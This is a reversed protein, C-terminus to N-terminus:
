WILLGTEEDSDDRPDRNRKSGQTRRSKRMSDNYSSIGAELREPQKQLVGNICKISVTRVFRCATLFYSYMETSTSM